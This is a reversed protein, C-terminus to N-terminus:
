QRGGTGVQVSDVGRVVAGIVIACTLTVMMWGLSSTGGWNDSLLESAPRILGLPFLALLLGLVFCVGIALGSLSRGALHHGTGPAIVSFVRRIGSQFRLRGGLVRENYVRAQYDMGAGTVFTRYCPLCLHHAGTTKDDRPDRALGCRPCPTSMRARMRVIGGLLVFIFGFLGMSAASDLEVDKGALVKWYPLIISRQDRPTSLHYDWFTSLPLGPAMLFSNVDRRDYTLYQAVQELNRATAASLSASALDFDDDMQHARMLNFAPAAESKMGTQAKELWPIAKKPHGLALEAVGALNEVYSQLDAPWKRSSVEEIVRKHGAPDGKRFEALLETFLIYRDEPSAQQRAHLDEMCGADCAVYQAAVLAQAPSGSYSALNDALKDVLPLGGIVAFLVLSVLRENWRQAVSVVLALALLLALPSKLLVGPVLVLALLLVVTQNSSFGKPLVRALDYAVIGFQRVTQAILFSFTAPLLALVGYILWKLLWPFRTDPWKWAVKFGKLGAAVYRPFAAIDRDMLYRSHAFYPYPLDPALRQAALFMDHGAAADKQQLAMAMVGTARTTQNVRGLSRGDHELAKLEDLGPKGKQLVSKWLQWHVQLNVDAVTSKPVPSDDIARGETNANNLLEELSADRQALAPMSFVFLAFLTLWFPVVSFRGPIHLYM